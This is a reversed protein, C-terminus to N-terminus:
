PMIVQTTDDDDDQPKRNGPPRPEPPLERTGMLNAWPRLDPIHIFATRVAAMLPMALFLGAPGWVLDWYLCALLVTTANLDMSRGMVLPIILYGEITVVLAYLVLLGVPVWPSPSSVFADIVPPVGALLQGLYPVYWLIMTLVAWTWPQSLDLLYYVVGLLLAMVANLLTRWVLYARIQAAIETLAASAKGRESLGEGFINVVRGLLMRSELLLFLLIFTILVGQWLYSSGSGLFSWVLTAFGAKNPNLASQVRQYIESDDPNKAFYRPDLEWPSVQELRDRFQTYVERQKRETGTDVLFKGVSFTLALSIALTVLMFGTVVLICGLSWPIGRRHLWAIVPWLMAALLLSLVLPVFVAKGVFLAVSLGLLIIAALGARTAPNITSTM